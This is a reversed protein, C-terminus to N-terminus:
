LLEDYSSMFEYADERATATFMSPTLKLCRGQM